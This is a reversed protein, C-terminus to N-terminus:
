AFIEKLRAEYRTKIGHVTAAEDAVDLGHVLLAKGDASIDSSVTGPTLTITGALVVIATPTTLELPVTFFRPRLQENRKFLILYAVQVNAIAIDLLVIFLYALAKPYSKITPPSPWFNTTYLPIAVGLVLGLVLAGLSFQNVLLMWFAALVVTLLPHPLWRRIM